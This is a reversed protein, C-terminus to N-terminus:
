VALLVPGIMTEFLAEIETVPLKASNTLLVLEVVLIVMVMLVSPATRLVLRAIKPKIGNRRCSARHRPAQGSGEVPNTGAIHHL